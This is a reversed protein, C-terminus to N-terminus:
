RIACAPANNPSTTGSITSSSMPQVLLVMGSNSCSQVDIILSETGCGSLSVIERHGLGAYAAVVVLRVLTGPTAAGPRPGLIPRVIGVSLRAHDDGDVPTAVPHQDSAPVDGSGLRALEAARADDNAIPNTDDAVRGAGLACQSADDLDLLAARHQPTRGIVVVGVLSRDHGVSVLQDDDGRQRIGWRPDSHDVTQQHSAVVGSDLWQQAEGLGIERCGVLQRRQILREANWDLHGERAGIQIRQALSEAPVAADEDPVRTNSFGRQDIGQDRTGIPRDTLDTRDGATTPM